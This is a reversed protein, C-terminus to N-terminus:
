EDRLFGSVVVRKGNLHSPWAELGQIYIVGNGDSDVIAGAKSDYATGEVNVRTQSEPSSTPQKPETM